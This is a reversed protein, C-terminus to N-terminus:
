LSFYKCEFARNHANNKGRKTMPLHLHTKEKDVTRILLALCRQQNEKWHIKDVAVYM